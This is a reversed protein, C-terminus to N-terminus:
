CCDEVIANHLPIPPAEEQMKAMSGKQVATYLEEVTHPPIPPAAETDYDTPDYKPKKTIATYLDEVTHPPIQPAGEEKTTGGKAVATYLEEVSCPPLPPLIKEKNDATNDKPKKKVATYLAEPLETTHVSTPTIDRQKIQDKQKIDTKDMAPYSCLMFKEGNKEAAAAHRGSKKGKMLKNKKQKKNVAAYTPQESTSVSGQETAKNCKDTDVIPPATQHSSLTNINEIEAKSITEAQGTSPSLQIQDYLNTPTNLSETQQTTERSLASYSHDDDQKHQTSKRLHLILAIVAVTVSTLVILIALIIGIVVAAIVVESAGNNEDTKSSNNTTNIPSNPEKTTVTTSVTGSQITFLLNPASASLQTTDDAFSINM